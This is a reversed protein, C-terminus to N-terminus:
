LEAKEAFLKAAQTNHDSAEKWLLVEKKLDNILKQQDDKTIPTNQELKNIREERFKIIMKDRACQKEYSDITQQLRKAHQNSKSIENDYYKQQSTLTDLNASLLGELHVVRKRISVLESKQVKFKKKLAENLPGSKHEPDDPHGYDMTILMEDEEEPLDNIEEIGDPGEAGMMAKCLPCAGGSSGDPM